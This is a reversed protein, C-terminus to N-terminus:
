AVASEPEPVMVAPMIDFGLSAADASVAEVMAEPTGPQRVPALCARGGSFLPLSSNIGIRGTSVIVVEYIDGLAEVLTLPKDSRRDLTPLTGWPVEALGDRVKHVVDGYTASDACLDTLGADGTVWGSGADVRCVSLGKDLAESVLVDAVLAADRADAIGALLVVRLRGLTIDASLNSLGIQAEALAQHRSRPEVVWEPQPHPQAEPQALEAEDASAPEHDATEEDETALQSAVMGDFRDPEHQADGEVDGEPEMAPEVQRMGRDYVARGSMLEGFLVIGIQLALSVFGVAGLILATKPSAPVDSPAAGTMLRVDPLISATDTRGAADRYKLLYGNLVDRQANAERTLSDLTVGDKTQTSSALKARALDDNLSKLVGDQVTVQAELGDAVRKAEARIQANTQAIQANLAKITPHAPLLTALKEALTSQLTARTQMLSQIVASNRVDDIGDVPQNSKLLSRILSARQEANNRAAQADTIQKGIDSIQQDPLTTGNAGAFIGNRAKYDAVKTDADEVKKRLDDIQQQLFVAADQTDSLSQGARRKVTEAAIANAIDAALQPKESRVLIDIAASDRTRVVTLRDNLNALVTEDVSKAAPKRGVLSMIATLPSSGTGAFEPDSRLKLTDIVALLTDRSKILEIQSSILVDISVGGGSPAASTAPETYLNSRDEVLLTASSEYMKPIFMLVVFSAVVLLVTVILIRLARAWLAGFLAGVDM